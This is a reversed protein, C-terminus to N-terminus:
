KTAKVTIYVIDTEKATNNLQGEPWEIRLIFHRSFAQKNSNTEGPFASVRTAQWYVPEADIHVNNYTSYTKDHYTGSGNANEPGTGSGPTGNLYTGVYQGGTVTTNTESISTNIRYYLPTPAVVDTHYQEGDVEPMGTVGVGTVKYEVYDVAVGAVPAPKATLEDAAYVKYTFPNNTTYALQITFESVAEGTVCFVYDKHTIKQENGGSLVPNGFGDAIVEDANIGDIEFYRSDERHAASLYLANPSQVKQLKIIERQYNFWAITPMAIILGITLVVALVLEIKRSVSMKNFKQKLKKM